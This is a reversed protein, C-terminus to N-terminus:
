SANRDDDRSDRCGGGGGCGFGGAVDGRERWIGSDGELPGGGFIEDLALSGVDVGMGLERDALRRRRSAAAFVRELGNREGRRVLVGRDVAM